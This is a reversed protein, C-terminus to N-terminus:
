CSQLRLVPLLRDPIYQHPSMIDHRLLCFPYTIRLSINEQYGTQKLLVVSCSKRTPGTGASCLCKFHRNRYLFCQRLCYFSTNDATNYPQETRSRNVIGTISSDGVQPLKKQVGIGPILPAPAYTVYGVHEAIGLSADIAVVYPATYTNQIHELTKELNLAHVPTELTGYIRPLFHAHKKVNSFHQLLMHGVLPGLCDGTARDSGICFFVLTQQNKAVSKKLHRIEKTFDKLATKYAPDFYLLTDAPQMIKM